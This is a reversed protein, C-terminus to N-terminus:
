YIRELLPSAAIDDPLLFAHPVDEVLDLKGFVFVEDVLSTCVQGKGILRAGVENRNIRQLIRVLIIWLAEYKYRKGVQGEAFAAMREADYEIGEKVRFRGYGEWGDTSWPRKIVGQAVAEIIHDNVRLLAHTWKMDAGLWNVLRLWWQTHCTLVVEIM